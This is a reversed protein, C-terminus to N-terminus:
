AGAVPALGEWSCQESMSGLQISYQYAIITQTNKQVGWIKHSLINAGLFNERKMVAWLYCTSIHFNIGTFNKLCKDSCGRCGNHLKSHSRTSTNSTVLNKFVYPLFSNTFPHQTLLLGVVSLISLYATATINRSPVSASLAGRPDSPWEKAEFLRATISAMCAKVSLHQLSQVGCGHTYLVMNIELTELNEYKIKTAQSM